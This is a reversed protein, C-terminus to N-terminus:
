GNFPIFINFMAKIWPWETVFSVSVLTLWELCLQFICQIKYNLGTKKLCIVEKIRSWLEKFSPCEDNGEEEVPLQQVDEEETSANWFSWDEKPTGKKKKPSQAKPKRANNATDPTQVKHVTAKTQIVEAYTPQRTQRSFVQPTSPIIIDTTVPALPRETNEPTVYCELAKRYTRGFESMIERLRREKKYAPCSKSLSIHNGKCNVCSFSLTDCNEHHAGCKPCIVNKSPCM